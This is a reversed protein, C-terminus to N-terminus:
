GQEGEGLGGGQYNLSGSVIKETNGELEGVDDEVVSALDDGVRAYWPGFGLQVLRATQRWAHFTVQRLVRQLLRPQRARELTLPDGKLKRMIGGVGGGGVGGCVRM